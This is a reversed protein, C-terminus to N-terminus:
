GIHLLVNVLHYGMPRLQWLHYEIWFTTFVLPYYQPSSTPELWISRQGDITRLNQNHLVYQPDDWIFAARIAPLYAVFTGVVIVIIGLLIWRRDFKEPSDIETM